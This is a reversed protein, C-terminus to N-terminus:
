KYKELIDLRVKRSIIISLNTDNRIYITKLSANVIYIYIKNTYELSLAYELKFLFDRNTSLEEIYVISM